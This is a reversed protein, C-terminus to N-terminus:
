GPCGALITIIFVFISALVGAFLSAPVSLLPAPAMCAAPAIVASVALLNVTGLTIGVYFIEAM